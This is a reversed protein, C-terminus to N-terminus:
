EWVALERLLDAFEALTRIEQHRLYYRRRLAAECDVQSEPAGLAQLRSLSFPEKGSALARREAKRLDRANQADVSAFLQDVSTWWVRGGQRGKDNVGAAGTADSPSTTAAVGDRRTGARAARQRRPPQEVLQSPSIHRAAEGWAKEREYEAKQSPDEPQAWCAPWVDFGEVEVGDVLLAYLHTEKPFDTMRVQWREGDVLAAWPTRADWTAEFAVPRALHSM